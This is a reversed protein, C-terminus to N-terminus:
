QSDKLYAGWEDEFSLLQKYQSRQMEEYIKSHELKLRNKQREIENQSITKIKAEVAKAEEM